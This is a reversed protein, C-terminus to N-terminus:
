ATLDRHGKRPGKPGRKRSGGVTEWLQRLESRSFIVGAGRALAEAKKQSLNANRHLAERLFSELSANKPFAKLVDAVRFMVQKFVPLVNNSAAELDSAISRYFVPNELLNLTLDTWEFSAIERRGGGSVPLGTAILKGELLARGFAFSKNPEPKSWIEDYWIVEDWPIRGQPYRELLSRWHQPPESVRRADRFAAWALAQWFTWYVANTPDRM